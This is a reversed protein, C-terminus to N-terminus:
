IFHLYKTFPAELVFKKFTNYSEIKKKLFLDQKNGMGGSKIYVYASVFRDWPNRVFTFKTYKMHDRYKEASIKSHDHGEIGIAIKLSNGGCKPIHIFIYKHKHSIM